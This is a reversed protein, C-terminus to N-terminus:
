GPPTIGGSAVYEARAKAAAVSYCLGIEQGGYKTQEPDYYVRWQRPRPTYSRAQSSIEPDIRYSGARYSPFDGEETKFRKWIMAMVKM